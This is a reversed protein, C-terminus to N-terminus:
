PNYMVTRRIHLKKGFRREAVIDLINVGPALFYRYQFENESVGVIENNIKVLVGPETKGVVEVENGVSITNDKPSLVVLFPFRFYNYAQYGLLGAVIVAVFITLGVDRSFYLSYERKGIRSHTEGGIRHVNNTRVEFYLSRLLEGSIDLCTELKRLYVLIYAESIESLFRDEEFLILSRMPVGSLESLKELSVKRSERARRLVTGLTESM